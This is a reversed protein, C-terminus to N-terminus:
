LFKYENPREKAQELIYIKDLTSEIREQSNPDISEQVHKLYFLKAYEAIYGKEGQLCLCVKFISLLLM